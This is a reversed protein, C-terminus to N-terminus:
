SHPLDARIEHGVVHNFILLGDSLMLRRTCRAAVGEGFVGQGPTRM